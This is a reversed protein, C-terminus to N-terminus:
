RRGRGFREAVRRAEEETGGHRSVYESMWAGWDAVAVRHSCRCMSHMPPFNVGPVRESYPFQAGELKQCIECVRRDGCSSFSYMEFGESELTRATTENYVYTGETYILREANRISSRRFENGMDRQIRRYSDGRAIARLLDNQMKKSMKEAGELTRQLTGKGDPAWGKGIFEETIQSNFGQEGLGLARTANQYAMHEVSQLHANLEEYTIADYEACLMMITTQLGELRNLQYISKRIEIIDAAEPHRRKFEEVNRMLLDREADTLRELMKRYEFVKDKGYRAYYAAIEDELKQAEEAYAARLREYVEMERKELATLTLDELDEWTATRIDFADEEKRRKEEKDKEKEREKSM